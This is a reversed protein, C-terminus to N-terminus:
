DGLVIKRSQNLIEKKNTQLNEKMWNLMEEVKEESDLMILVAMIDEMDLKYFLLGSALIEQNTLKEM